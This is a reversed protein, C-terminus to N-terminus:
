SPAVAAGNLSDELADLAQIQLERLRDATAAALIAHLPPDVIKHITSNEMMKKGGRKRMNTMTPM